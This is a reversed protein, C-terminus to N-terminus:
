AEELLNVRKPLYLPTKYHNRMRYKRKPSSNFELIESREM